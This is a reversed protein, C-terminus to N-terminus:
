GQLEARALEFYVSRDVEFEQRLLFSYRRFGALLREVSALDELFM